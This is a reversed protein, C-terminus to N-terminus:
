LLQRAEGQCDSDDKLVAHWGFIAIVTMYLVVIFRVIKDLKM